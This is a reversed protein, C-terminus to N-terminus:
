CFRGDQIRPSSDYERLRQADTASHESFAGDARGNKTQRLAKDLEERINTTKTPTKM